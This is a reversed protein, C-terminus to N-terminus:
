KKEKTLLGEMLYDAAAPSITKLSSREPISVKKPEFSYELRVRKTSLEATDKSFFNFAVSEVIGELIVDLTQRDSDFDMSFSTLKDTLGQSMLNLTKNFQPTPHEMEKFQLSNSFESDIKVGFLFDNSQENIKVQHNFQNEWDQYESMISSTSPQILHDLRYSISLFPQKDFFLSPINIREIKLHYQNEKYSLQGQKVKMLKDKNPILLLSVVPKENLNVTDITENSFETFLNTYEAMKNDFQYDFFAQKFYALSDLFDFEKVYFLRHRGYSIFSFNATEPYYDDMQYKLDGKLDGKSADMKFIAEGMEQKEDLNTWKMRVEFREIDEMEMLSESLQELLEQDVENETLNENETLSETSIQNAKVSNPTCLITLIFISIFLKIVIKIVRDM